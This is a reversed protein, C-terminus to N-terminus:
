VSKFPPPPTWSMSVLLDRSMVYDMISQLSGYHPLCSYCYPRKYPGCFAWCLLSPMLVLPPIALARPHDRLSRETVEPGRLAEVTHGSNDLLAKIALRGPWLSNMPGREPASDWLIVFGKWKRIVKLWFTRRVWIVKGHGWYSRWLDGIQGQLSKYYSM